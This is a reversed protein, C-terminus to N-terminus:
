FADPGFKGGSSRWFSLKLYVSDALFHGKFIAMRVGIGLDSVGFFRFGFVCM